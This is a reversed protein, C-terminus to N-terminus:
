QDKLKKLEETLKPVVEFLDGVVGYDAVKFIPAEPDKNIAVIIPVGLYSLSQTGVLTAGMEVRQRDLEQNILLPANSEIIKSTLGEGYQMPTLGEGFTYPFNITGSAEDLLAVYAIDAKFISRVQEGVLSILASLDLERVLASGVTNVTALEAARQQEAKFLRQTENFLRANELAVGMSGAVTQLLRVDSETFLNPV